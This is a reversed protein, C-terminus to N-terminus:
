RQAAPLVGLQPFLVNNELHIHLHLDAELAELGAWLARWTNCAAEPVTFDNTLKRIARLMDGAQDHEAMMVSVPGGAMAGQGSRIMPFLIQEEKAMHQELEAHLGRVADALTGLREPDKAGHVTNVKDAMAVLRPLEEHHPAHFAELIHDLLDDISARDWRTTDADAPATAATIEALVQAPDVGRAACAESLPLGGGCCFDIGHRAFVRTALPQEVAITGVTDNATFTM